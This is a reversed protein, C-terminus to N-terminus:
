CILQHNFKGRAVRAYDDSNPASRAFEQALIVYDYITLLTKPELSKQKNRNVLSYLSHEYKVGFLKLITQKGITYM